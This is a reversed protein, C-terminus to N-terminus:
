SVGHEFIDRGLDAEDDLHQAADYPAQRFQGKLAEYRDAEVEEFVSRARRRRHRAPLAPEGGALRAHTRPRSRCWDRAGRVLVASAGATPRTGVILNDRVPVHLNIHNAQYTRTL